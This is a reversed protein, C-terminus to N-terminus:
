SAAHSSPPKLIPARRETFSGLQGCAAMEDDGRSDRVTAVHGGQILAGRFAHVAEPTSPQFTTGQHPNFVILNIKCKVNKLLDLLLAADEIGDNIGNLMTYEILVHRGKCRMSSQKPFLEELLGVLEGLSHRRNIPVIWNRIDEKPSHLSVAILANSAAVFARLEPVLGVTSVTVKNHSMHLGLPHCIIEVSPLVNTLNHLPEGQGMYVVNTIPSPSPRDAEEGQEQALLRRASVLQEVIQAASLSGVLGMRGTFCFQCNMACGVQSSVCLTLRPKSGRERVIPILVAEVESGAAKGVTLKFILKRTGDSASHIGVLEIGGDITAIGNFREIFSNSFGNQVGPSPAQDLATIWQGDYDHYYMWRWLQVARKSGEGISECWKELQPFSLNKIMLRRQDDFWDEPYSPPTAVGTDTVLQEACFNASCSTRSTTHVSM